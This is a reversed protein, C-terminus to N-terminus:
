ENCEIPKIKDFDLMGLSTDHTVNLCIAPIDSEIYHIEAYRRINLMFQNSNFSPDLVDDINSYIRSNSAIEKLTSYPESEKYEVYPLISKPIVYITLDQGDITHIEVNKYSEGNITCVFDDVEGYMLEYNGLYVGTKLIYVNNNIGLKDLARFIDRYQIDYKVTNTNIISLLQVVTSRSMFSILSDPINTYDIHFTPDLLKVEFSDEVEEIISITKSNGNILSDKQSPMKRWKEQSAEYLRRKFVDVTDKKANPHSLVNGKAAVLQKYWEDVKKIVEDKNVENLREILKFVEKEFWDEVCKKLLLVSNIEQDIRSFDSDQQPIEFAYNYKSNHISWLRIFCLSLFSYAEHQIYRDNQIGHNLNVFYYQNEVRLFSASMENISIMRDRIESISNPLLPYEPPLVNSYFLLDNITDYRKYFVLLGGLMISTTLIGDKHFNLKERNDLRYKLRFRFYQDMWSWHQLIWTKNDASVADNLLKWIIQHNNRHPITEILSPYLLHTIANYSHFRSESDKSGIIRRQKFIIRLVEEPLERDNPTNKILDSLYNSVTTWTNRFLSEDDRFSLYLCLENIEPIPPNPYHELWSKLEDPQQYIIILHYLAFSAFILLIIGATQSVLLAHSNKFASLCFPITVAMVLNLILIARFFRYRKEKLFCKTLLTGGYKVDIRAISDLIMPYSIGFVASVLSLLGSYTYNTFDFM